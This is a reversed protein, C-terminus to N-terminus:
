GEVAKNSRLRSVAQHIHERTSMLDAQDSEPPHATSHTGPASDTAIEMLAASAAVDEIHVGHLVQPTLRRVVALIAKFVLRKHDGAMFGCNNNKLYKVLSQIRLESAKFIKWGSVEQLTLLRKRARQRLRRRRARARRASAQEHRAGAYFEIVKLARGAAHPHKQISLM